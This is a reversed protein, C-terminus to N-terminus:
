GEGRRVDMILVGDSLSDGAIKGSNVIKEFLYM